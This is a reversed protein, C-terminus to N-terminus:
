SSQVTRSHNGDGEKYSHRKHERSKGTYSIGTCKVNTSLPKCLYTCIEEITAALQLAYYQLADPSHFVRESFLVAIILIFWILAIYLMRDRDDTM